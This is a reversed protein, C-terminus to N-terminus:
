ALDVESESIAFLEQAWQLLEFRGEFGAQRLQVSPTHLLKQTLSQSFGTLVQWADDGRQLKKQAKGLEIRCLEEIQKRYVRITNTVKEISHFWTMFEHSQKAIMEHAKEAAHERGQRNQEIIAKLHDISYLHVNPLDAVSAEVARPVAMDIIYLPKHRQLGALMQQQIVPQTGGTATFIVDVTQLLPLLEAFTQATAAYQKALAVANTLSRNVISLKQTPHAQLHSLILQATDGAGVVLVQKEKLGESFCQKALAVASSAVSVPCAGIATTTRVEKAMNFVQQFLRHFLTGVVGAVCSESFAAKMQGLIQPEGLVMSDLGCAVQMLHVVAAQDQYCYLVSEIQERPLSYQRCFWNVLQTTDNAECYLESRNCTSLLVAERINEQSLLDQLYLPLKEPSFFLQERLEVPATKHNLGCVIIPM